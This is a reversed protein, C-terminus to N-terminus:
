AKYHGLSSSNEFYIVLDANMTSVVRGADKPSNKWVGDFVGFLWTFSRHDLVATFFGLSIPQTV